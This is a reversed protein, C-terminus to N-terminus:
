CISVMSRVSSMPMEKWGPPVRGKKGEFVWSKVLQSVEMWSMQPRVESSRRLSRRSAGVGDCFNAARSDARRRRREWFLIWCRDGMMVSARTRMLWEGVVVVM